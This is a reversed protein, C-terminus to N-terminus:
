LIVVELVDLKDAFSYYHFENTQLNILTLQIMCKQNSLLVRKTQNSGKVLGTLLVIFIKKFLGFM